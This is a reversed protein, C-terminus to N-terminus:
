EDIELPVLEFAVIDRLIGKWTEENYPGDQLDNGRTWDEGAREKRSSSICGLYGNPDDSSSPERASISYCTTETYMKVNIVQEANGTIEQTILLKKDMENSSGRFLSEKIWSYLEPLRHSLETSDIVTAGPNEEEIQEKRTPVPMEMGQQPPVLEDVTFFTLPGILETAWHRM